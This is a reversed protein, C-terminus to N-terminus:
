EWRIHIQATAGADGPRVAGVRIYRAQLALVPSGNPWSFVAPTVGDPPLPAGDSTQLEIAVGAGTGTAAIYRPDPGFAPASLTVTARTVGVCDTGTFAAQRWPSSGGALESATVTGLVIRVRDTALSCSPLISGRIVFDLTDTASTAASAFAFMGIAVALLPRFRHAMPTM